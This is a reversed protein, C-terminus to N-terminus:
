GQPYNPDGKVELMQRVHREDHAAVTLAWQYGDMMTHEGNTVIRLPPSELLHARLDPTSEVYAELREYNRRLRHLADEPSLRGTPAIFEPAKAKISRDPIKEFVLRDVAEHDRDAEPAPAQALQETVPGLIREQVIVMHELIEAISWRDAAPKFRWQAESLGSTANAVLKETAAFYDRAQEIDTCQLTSM